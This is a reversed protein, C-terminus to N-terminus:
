SGPGLAGRCSWGLRCVVRERSRRTKRTRACCSVAAHSHPSLAMLALNIVLAEGLSAPEGMDIDKPVVLGTVFGIAYLITIFFVAYATLGYLFALVKSFRGTAADQSVSQAKAVADHIAALVLDELMEVDDPDADGTPLANPDIKVSRFEM